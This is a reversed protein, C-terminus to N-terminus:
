VAGSSRGLPRRGCSRRSSRGLWRPGSRAGGLRSGTRAPTISSATGTQRARATRSHSSAVSARLPRSRASSATRPRTGRGRGRKPTERSTRQFPVEGFLWALGLLGLRNNIQRKPYGVRWKWEEVAGATDPGYVGDVAKGKFGLARQVEKIDDGALYPDMLTLQRRM